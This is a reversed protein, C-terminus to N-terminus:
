IFLRVALLLAIFLLPIVIDAIRMHLSIMVPFEGSFGRSLMSQYVIQSREWSRLFIVAVQNGIVRIRRMRLRGPTRSARARTTKLTEDAILFIYQYLLASITTIIVPIKLKRLALLLRHFRETSSLLILLSVALFAKMFIVVGAMLVMERNATFFEQRALFISLPYFLAAMLIFPSVVLLRKFLYSVPLRTISVVATVLALYLIFRVLDATLPETVIVIIGTFVAVIKMRPDLRHVPSDLHCYKDIFDHKM